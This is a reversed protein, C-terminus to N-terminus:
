DNQRAQIDFDLIISSGRKAKKLSTGTSSASSSSSVADKVWLHCRALSLFFQALDVITDLCIKISQLKGPELDSAPARALLKRLDGCLAWLLPWPKALTLELLNYIQLVNFSLKLPCPIHFLFHYHTTLTTSTRSKSLHNCTKYNGCNVILNKSWRKKYTSTSITEFIHRTQAM